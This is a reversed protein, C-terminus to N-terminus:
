MEILGALDPDIDVQPFDKKRDKSPHRWKNIFIGAQVAMEAEETSMGSFILSEMVELPTEKLLRDAIEKYLDMKPREEITEQNSNRWHQQLLEPDIPEYDDDDFSAKKILIDTLIFALDKLGVEDFLDAATKINELAEINRKQIYVKDLHSLKNVNINFEDIINAISTKPFFM